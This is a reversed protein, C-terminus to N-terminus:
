RESSAFPAPTATPSEEQQFKSADLEFTIPGGIAKELQSITHTLARLFAKAHQHSMVIGVRPEVKTGFRESFVIRVDWNSGQTQSSNVYVYSARDWLEDIVNPITNGKQDQQEM